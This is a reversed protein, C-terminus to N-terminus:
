FTYGYFRVGLTTINTIIYNYNLKLLSIITNKFFVSFKAFNIFLFDRLSNNSKLLNQVLNIRDVKIM